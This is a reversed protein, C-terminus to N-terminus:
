IDEKSLVTMWIKYLNSLKPVFLIPLGSDVDLAAYCDPEVIGFLYYFNGEQYFPYSVDSNYIPVEGIGKFLAVSNPEAV